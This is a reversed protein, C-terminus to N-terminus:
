VPKPIRHYRGARWFWSVGSLKRGRRSCRTCRRPAAGRGPARSPAISCQRSCECFSLAASHSNKANQLDEALM